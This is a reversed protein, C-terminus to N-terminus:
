LGRCNHCLGYKSPLYKDPDKDIESLYIKKKENYDWLASGGSTLMRELMLLRDFLRPHNIKLMAFNAPTKYPSCWCDFARGYIQYLPNVKLHFRNVYTCIDKDNWDLLPHFVLCRLFNHFTIKQKVFNEKKMRKRLNSEYIRLGSVLIVNKMDMDKIFRRVPRVKLRWKCWRRSRTPFGYRKVMDFYSQKPKLLYLEVNYDKCIKQVYEINGPTEITTDVHIAKIHKGSIVANRVVIDLAVLSDRGGSFLVLVDYEKLYQRIIHNTEQLKVDFEM